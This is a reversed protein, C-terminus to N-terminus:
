RLALDNISLIAVLLSAILGAVVFGLCVTIVPVLLSLLRDITHKVERDCIDAQRLLMENLRGTEEGVRVLDLALGPFIGARGLLDALAEGERLTTATKGIAQAIVENGLTGKTVGLATPLPVGDSLLTGLTRAFREMEIKAALAGFLPLRLIMADLRLRLAPRRLARKTGVIIAAAGLLLLWWYRGLFDGAAMIIRTALPLTVGAQQFLPAFQPLVFVLIVSIALGATTLLIAPYVLASKLAERVAYAKGLYDALRFLTTELSGGMEGARVLSVFLRPFTEGAAAFADGLGAGDKVRELVAALHPRLRGTGALNTLIELARDLPLGAQLLTALEHTILTLERPSAHETSSLRRALVGRWFGGGEAVASIPYQGLSQLHEIIAAPSPGDMEGNVLAGSSNMATYRFRAM